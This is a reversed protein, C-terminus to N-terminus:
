RWTEAPPTEGEILEKVNNIEGRLFQRTERRVQRTNYGADYGLQQMLIPDGYVAAGCLLLLGYTLLNPWLEDGFFKLATGWSSKLGFKTTSLNVSWIEDLVLHVTFGLMVAVALYLRLMLEQQSCALFTLLGAILCAPVSHWMGRHVTFRKFLGGVGFRIGLYIGGTAVAIWTNSLDWQRFRDNMLGPVLAAVFPFMERAPRGSDSDLDPLMGAVSCLGGALVCTELPAGQTHGYVGYGIGIVTSWGIHTRFDALPLFGFSWHIIL